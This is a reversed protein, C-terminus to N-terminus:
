ASRLRQAAQELRQREALVKSAYRRDPDNAAGGFQQLGNELGGNRHISEKLVKAGVQVNTQPDFFPLAGADSPLKDLHFRPVVQMLGQAGVVSQSFPNFGSEVGIVAIILLPDLRLERGVVQATAFIPQLALNSVHYRKSVYDLAGRMRPSLTESKIETVETIETTVDPEDDVEEEALLVSKPLVSKLGEVFATHGNYLGFLGVLLVLGSLMLAKQILTLVASTVKSMAPPVLTTAVM